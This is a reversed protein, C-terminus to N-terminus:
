KPKQKLKRKERVTLGVNLILATHIDTAELFTSAPFVMKRDPFLIVAQGGLPARRMNAKGTSDYDSYWGPAVYNADPTTMFGAGLMHGGAVIDPSLLGKRRAQVLGRFMDFESGSHSLHDLLLFEYDTSGYKLNMLSQNLYLPVKNLRSYFYDGPRFGPVRERERHTGYSGDKDPRENEVEIWEGLADKEWRADLLSSSMMIGLLSKQRSIESLDGIMEDLVQIRDYQQAVASDVFHRMVLAYEFPSSAVHKLVQVLKERDRKEFSTSGYRANALLYVLIPLKSASEINWGFKEFIPTDRKDKRTKTRSNQEDLTANPKRSRETIEGVLEQTKGQRETSDWLKASDYLVQGKNFGYSAWVYEGNKGDGNKRSTQNFILQVGPAVTPGKAMRTLFPDPFEPDNGKLTGNAFLVHSREKGERLDISLEKSVGARHHWDGGGVGDIPGRHSVFEWLRMRQAGLPNIEDSGGGGPAHYLLQEYTIGNSFHIILRGGNHVVKLPTGDPQKFGHAIEQVLDYGILTEGWGEHGSYMGVMCLIKGTQVYPRIIEKAAWVQQRLNLELGGMHDTIKSNAGEIFDGMIIGFTNPETIKEMLADAKEADTQVSFLHTDSIPIVRIPGDTFVKLEVSEDMNSLDREISQKLRHLEDLKKRVEDFPTQGSDVFVIKPSPRERM